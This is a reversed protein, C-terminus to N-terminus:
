GSTCIKLIMEVVANNYTEVDAFGEITEGCTIFTGNIEIKRKQFYDSIKKKVAEIKKSIDGEILDM